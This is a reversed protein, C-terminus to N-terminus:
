VTSSLSGVLAALSNLQLAPAQERRRSRRNNLLAMIPFLCLQEGLHSVSHESRALARRPKMVLGRQIVEQAFAPDGPALLQRQEQRQQPAHVLRGGPARRRHQAADRPLRLERVAQLRGQWPEHGHKPLRARAAGGRALNARATLARGASCAGDSSESMNQLWSATLADARHCSRHTTSPPQVALGYLGTPLASVGCGAM